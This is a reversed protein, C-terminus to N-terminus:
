DRRTGMSSRWMERVCRGPHSRIYPLLPRAERKAGVRFAEGRFGYAFQTQTGRLSIQLVIDREKEIPVICRVTAKCQIAAICQVVDKYHLALAFFVSIVPLYYFPISPIRTGPSSITRWRRPCSCLAWMTTCATSIRLASSWSGNRSGPSTPMASSERTRTYSGCSGEGSATPGGTRSTQPSIYAPTPVTASNRICHARAATPCVPRSDTPFPCCRTRKRDTYVGDPIRVEQEGGEASHHM